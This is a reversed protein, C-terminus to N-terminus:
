KQLSREEKIASVLTTSTNGITKKLTVRRAKSEEASETVSEDQTTLKAYDPRLYENLSVKEIVDLDRDVFVGECSILNHGSVEYTIVCYRYGENRFVCGGLLKEYGEDMMETSFPYNDFLSLQKQPAVIDGNLANAFLVAYHPTSSEGYHKMLEGMRSKSIVTYVVNQERDIVVRSEWNFRKFPLVELNERALDKELRTNIYDCKQFPLANYTTLHAWEMYASVDDELANRVCAVLKYAVKRTVRDAIHDENLKEKKMFKEKTMTM